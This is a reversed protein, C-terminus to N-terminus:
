AGWEPKVEQEYEQFLRPCFVDTHGILVCLYCFFGLQEYQFHVIVLGADAKRIKKWRLLPLRVDLRVRIRM